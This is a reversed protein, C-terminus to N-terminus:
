SEGAWERVDPGVEAKEESSWCPAKSNRFFSTYLKMSKITTCVEFSIETDLEPEYTGMQKQCLGGIPEKYWAFIQFSDFIYLFM